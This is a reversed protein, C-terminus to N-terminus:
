APLSDPAPFAVEAPQSLVYSITVGKMRLAVLLPTSLREPLHLRYGGFFYHHADLYLTELLFAPRGAGNLAQLIPLVPTREVDSFYLLSRERNFFVHNVGLYYFIDKESTSAPLDRRQCPVNATHRVSHPVPQM